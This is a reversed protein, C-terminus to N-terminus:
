WHTLAKCGIIKGKHTRIQEDPSYIDNREPYVSKIDVATVASCVLIVDDMEDPLNSISIDRTTNIKIHRRSPLELIRELENNSRTRIITGSPPISIISKTIFDEFTFEHPTCNMIKM